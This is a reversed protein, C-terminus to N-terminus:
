SLINATSVSAAQRLRRGSSHTGSGHWWLAKRCRAAPAASDVLFSWVLCNCVWSWIFECLTFWNSRFGLSFFCSPTPLREMKGSGISEALFLVRRMNWHKYPLDIHREKPPFLKQCASLEHWRFWYAHCESNQLLQGAHHLLFGFSGHLFLDEKNGALRSTMTVLCKLKALDSLVLTDQEWITETIGETSWRDM